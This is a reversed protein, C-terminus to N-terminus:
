KLGANSGRRSLRRSLLPTPPQKVNLLNAPKPDPLCDFTDGLRSKEKILNLMTEIREYDPEAEFDLSQAYQLLAKIESPLDKTLEANSVPDRMKLIKEKANESKLFEM